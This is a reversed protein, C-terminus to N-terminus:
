QRGTMMDIHRQLLKSRAEERPKGKIQRLLKRVASSDAPLAQVARYIDSYEKQRQAAERGAAQLKRISVTYFRRQYVTFSIPRLFARPPPRRGVM